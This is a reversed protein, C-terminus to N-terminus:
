VVCEEIVAIIKEVRREWSNEQAVELRRRCLREDREVLAECVEREFEAADRAIRVLGGFPRVARLETSVIPKGSGLYEYLKLPSCYINFPDDAVYPILCVDFAKLYRPLEEYSKLGLLHVNAMQRLEALAQWNGKNRLPKTMQGVLVLSWEPHTRALELLLVFDMRDTLNGLYGIVPNSINTVDEALSTSEARASSFHRVDVANPIVHVNRSFLRKREYLAESVVFTLDARALIRKERAVLKDQTRFFPVGAWAAYEDYCEYVLLREGLLGLYEEQFPDYIWTILREQRVGLSSIVLKLQRRLWERNLVPMIPLKAAVHDHLFVWPRYLFLNESLKRLRDTGLVQKIWLAPDRMPSTVLCVPRDVCLVKSMPSQDALVRLLYRRFFTDWNESLFIVFDYDSM